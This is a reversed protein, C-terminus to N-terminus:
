RSGKQALRSLIRAAAGYAPEEPYRRALSSYHQLADDLRGEVLADAADRPPAGIEAGAGADSVTVEPAAPPTASHVVQATEAPDAPGPQPWFALCLLPIGSAMLLTRRRRVPVALIARIWTTALVRAPHRPRWMSTIEGTARAGCAPVFEATVKRSAEPSVRRGIVTGDPDSPASGTERGSRPDVAAVRTADPDADWRGTV